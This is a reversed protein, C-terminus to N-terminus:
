CGVGSKESILRNLTRDEISQGSSRVKRLLELENVMNTRRETLEIGPSDFTSTTNQMKSIAIPDLFLQWLGKTHWNLRTNLNIPRTIAM